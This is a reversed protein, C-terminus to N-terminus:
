WNRRLLRSHCQAYRFCDLQIPADCM